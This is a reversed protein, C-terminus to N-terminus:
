ALAELIRRPHDAQAAKCAKDMSDYHGMPPEDDIDDRPTWMGFGEEHCTEVLYSGFSTYAMWSEPSRCDWVLPKVTPPIDARTNWAAVIRDKSGDSGTLNCVKCKVYSCSAMEVNRLEAEGGCCPCPKLDPADTM